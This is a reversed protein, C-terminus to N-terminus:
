QTTGMFVPGPGPMGNSSTVQETFSEDAHGLDKVPVTICGAHEAFSVQSIGVGVKGMVPAEIFSYIMSATTYALRGIVPVVIIKIVMVESVPLWFLEFAIAGIYVKILGYLEYVVVPFLGKENVKGGVRGVARQIYSFFIVVAVPIFAFETFLLLGEIAHDGVDVVVQPHQFLFQFGPVQTLICDQDEHGVIASGMTGAYEICAHPAVLTGLIFAAMAYGEENTPFLCANFPTPINLGNGGM